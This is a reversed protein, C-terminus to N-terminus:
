KHCILKYSNNLENWVFICNGVKIENLEKKELEILSNMLKPDHKYHEQILKLKQFREKTKIKIINFIANHNKKPLLNQLSKQTNRNQQEQLLIKYEEYSIEKLKYNPSSSGELWSKVTGLGVNAKQAVEEKNKCPIILNNSKLTLAYYM